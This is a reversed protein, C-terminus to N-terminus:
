TNSQSNKQFSQSDNIKMLTLKKKELFNFHTIKLFNKAGEQM